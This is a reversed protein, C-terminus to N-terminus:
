RLDSEAKALRQSDNRIFGLQRTGRNNGGKLM